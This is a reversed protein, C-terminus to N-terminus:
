APPAFTASRPRPKDAYHSLVAEADDAFKRLANEIASPERDGRLPALAKALAARSAYQVCRWQPGGRRRRAGAAEDGTADLRAITGQRPEYLEPTQPPHFYFRWVAVVARWASGPGIAEPPPKPPMASPGDITLISGGELHL